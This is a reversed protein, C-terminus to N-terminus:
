GGAAAKYAWAEKAGISIAGGIIELFIGGIVILVVLTLLLKKGKGNTLPETSYVLIPLATAMLLGVFFLHEKTEMGFSHTWKYPSEKIVAKDVGYNTVYWAGGSIFSLWVLFAIAFALYRITKPDPDKRKLEGILWAALVIAVLAFFVHTGIGLFAHYGLDGV